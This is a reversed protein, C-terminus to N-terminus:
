DQRCGFVIFGFLVTTPSSLSRRPRVSPRSPSASTDCCRSDPDAAVTRKGGTGGGGVGIGPGARNLTAKQDDTLTAYFADFAPRKSAAKLDNLAVRQADTPHWSARDNRCAVRVSKFPIM